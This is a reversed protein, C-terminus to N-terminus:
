LCVSLRPQGSLPLGCRCGEVCRRSEPPQPNPPPAQHPVGGAGEVQVGEPEIEEVRHAVAVELEEGAGLRGWPGATAGYSPGGGEWTCYPPVAPGPPSVFPPCPKKQQNILFCGECFFRRFVVQFTLLPRMKKGCFFASVLEFKRLFVGQFNGFKRPVCRQLANGVCCDSGVM